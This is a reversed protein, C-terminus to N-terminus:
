ASTCMDTNVWLGRRNREIADNRQSEMYSTRLIRKNNILAPGTNVNLCNKYKKHFNLM